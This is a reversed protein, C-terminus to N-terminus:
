DAAAERAGPGATLLKRLVVASAAAERVNGEYRAAMLDSGRDRMRLSLRKALHIREELATLATWLASEVENSRESLLSDMTFSHGVRCRFQVMGADEAEWLAGHCEPCTFGSPRTDEVVETPLGELANLVSAEVPDRGNTMGAGGERAESVLRVLLPGMEDLRVVHDPRVHEVASSPMGPYLAEEPDQVVTVGGRDRIALLGMTGDNLNGSLV